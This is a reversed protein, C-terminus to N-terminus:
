QGVDARYPWEPEYDFFRGAYQPSWTTLRVSLPIIRAGERYKGLSSGACEFVRPNSGQKVVMVVHNSGNDPYSHGRVLIDGIRWPLGPAFQREGSNEVKLTLHSVFSDTTWGHNAPTPKPIRDRFWSGAKRFIWAVAGSCDMQGNKRPRQIHAGHSYKVKWLVALKRAAAM